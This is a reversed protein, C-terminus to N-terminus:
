NLFGKRDLFELFDTYGGGQRIMLTTGSLGLKVLRHVPKDNSYQNPFQLEYVFDKVKAIPLKINQEEFQGM